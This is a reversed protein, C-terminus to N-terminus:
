PVVEFSVVNSKVVGLRRKSLALESEMFQKKDIGFEAVLEDVDEARYTLLPADNYSRFLM